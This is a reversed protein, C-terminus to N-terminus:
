ISLAFPYGSVNTLAASILSASIGMVGRGLGPSPPGTSLPFLMSLPAPTGTMGRGLGPSPPGTSLPRGFKGGIKRGMKGPPVPPETVTM